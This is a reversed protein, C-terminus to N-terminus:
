GSICHALRSCQCCPREAASKRLSSGRPVCDCPEAIPPRVTQDATAATTGFDRSLCGRGGPRVGRVRSVPATNPQGASYYGSLGNISLGRDRRPWPRPGARSAQGAARYLAITRRRLAVYALGANQQLGDRHGEQPRRFCRRRAAHAASQTSRTNGSKSSHL